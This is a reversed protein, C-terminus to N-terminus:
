CSSEGSEPHEPTAMGVSVSPEMLVHYQEATSRARKLIGRATIVTGSIASLM